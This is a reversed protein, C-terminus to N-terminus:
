LGLFIQNRDEAVPSIKISYKGVVEQRVVERPQAAFKGSSLDGEELPKEGEQAQRSSFGQHEDGHGLHGPINSSKGGHHRDEVIEFM